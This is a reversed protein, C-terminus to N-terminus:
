LLLTPFLINSNSMRFRATLSARQPTWTAHVNPHKMTIAMLLSVLSANVVEENVQGLIAFRDRIDFAVESPSTRPPLVAGLWKARETASACAHTHGCHRLARNSLCFGSMFTPARTNDGDSDGDGDGWPLPPSVQADRKRM